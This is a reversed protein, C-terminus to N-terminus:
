AVVVRPPRAEGVAECFSDAWCAPSDGEPMVLPAMADMYENFHRHDIPVHRLRLEDLVRARFAAALFDDTYYM